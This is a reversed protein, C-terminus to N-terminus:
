AALFNESSGFVREFGNQRLLIELKNQDVFKMGHRSMILLTMTLNIYRGDMCDMHIDRTVEKNRVADCLTKVFDASRRNPELLACEERLRELEPMHGADKQYMFEPVQFSHLLHAVGRLKETDDGAYFYHFTDGYLDDDAAKENKYVVLRRQMGEGVYVPVAHNSTLVLRTFVRHERLKCFKENVMKRESTIISKLNDFKEISRPTLPEGEDFALVRQAYFGANFNPEANLFNKLTSITTSSGGNLARSMIDVLMSKGTGQRGILVLMFQPRNLLHQLAHAFYTLVFAHREMNDGICSQILRRLHHETEEHRRLPMPRPILTAKWSGDEEQWIPTWRRTDDHEGAPDLLRPPEDVIEIARVRCNSLKHGYLSFMPSVQDLRSLELAADETNRIVVTRRDFGPSSVIWLFDPRFPANKDPHKLFEQLTTPAFPEEEHWGEGTKILHICTKNGARLFSAM